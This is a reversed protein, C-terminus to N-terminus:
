FTSIIQSLQSSKTEMLKMATWNILSGRREWAGAERHQLPVHWIQSRVCVKSGMPWWPSDWGSHVAPLSRNKLHGVRFCTSGKGGMAVTGSALSAPYPKARFPLSCYCPFRRPLRWRGNEARGTEATFFRSWNDRQEIQFFFSFFPRTGRWIIQWILLM